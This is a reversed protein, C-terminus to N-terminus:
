ILCDSPVTSLLIIVKILLVHFLYMTLSAKPYIYSRKFLNLILASLFASSLSDHTIYFM